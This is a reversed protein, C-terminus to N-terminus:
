VDVWDGRNEIDQARCISGDSDTLCPPAQRKPQASPAEAEAAESACLFVSVGIRSGCRVRSLGSIGPVSNMFFWKCELFGLVLHPARSVCSCVNTSLVIGPAQQIAAWPSPALFHGAGKLATGCNVHGKRRRALHCKRSFFAVQYRHTRTCCNHFRELPAALCSSQPGDMQFSVQRSVPPVPSLDEGTSHGPALRLRLVQPELHPIGPHVGSEAWHTGRGGATGSSPVLLPETTGQGSVRARSKVLVRSDRRGM